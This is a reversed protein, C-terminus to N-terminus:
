HVGHRNAYHKALVRRRQDALRAPLDVAEKRDGKGAPKPLRDKASEPPGRRKWDGQHDKM